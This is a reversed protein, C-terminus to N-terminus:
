RTPLRKKQLQVRLRVVDFGSQELDHIYRATRRLEDGAITHDGEQLLRASRRTPILLSM